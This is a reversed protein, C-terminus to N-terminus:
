TNQYILGEEKVEDYEELACIHGDVLYRISSLFDSLPLVQGKIAISMPKKLDQSNFGLGSHDKNNPLELMRGWGVPLGSKIIALVDKLSAMPFELSKVEWIPGVMEFNVIEFSQFPTEKLEGEVEM